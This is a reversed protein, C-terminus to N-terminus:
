YRSVDSTNGKSTVLLVSSIVVTSSGASKREVGKPAESLGIISLMNRCADAPVTAGGLTGETSTALATREFPAM